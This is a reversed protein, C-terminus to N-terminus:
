RKQSTHGHSLEDIHVRQRIFGVLMNDDVNTDSMYLRLFVSMGDLVNQEPFQSPGLQRM